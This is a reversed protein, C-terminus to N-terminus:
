ECKHLEKALEAIAEVIANRREVAPAKELIKQFAETIEKHVSAPTSPTAGKLLVRDCRANFDAQVLALRDPALRGLPNLMRWLKPYCNDNGLLEYVRKPTIGLETAIEGALGDFAQTTVDKPNLM